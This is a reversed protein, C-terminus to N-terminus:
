VGEWFHQTLVPLYDQFHGTYVELGPPIGALAKDVSLMETAKDM